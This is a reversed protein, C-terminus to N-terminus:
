ISVKSKWKGALWKDVDDSYVNFGYKKRIYIASERIIDSSYRVANYEMDFARAHEHIMHFVPANAVKIGRLLLRISFEIDEFGIFMNEDFMGADVFSKKHYVSTGGFLFTGFVVRNDLLSDVSLLSAGYSAFSSVGVVNEVKDFVVAGGYAYVTSKDSNLLPLNIYLANHKEIISNIMPLPDDIFYIDNDIFFLWDKEAHRTALNRGKAVGHNVGAEILVIDNQSHNSIHCKIKELEGKDSGNDFVVIQGRFGTIKEEISALLRITMDARNYSLIVISLNHGNVGSPAHFLRFTGTHSVLRAESFNVFHSLLIVKGVGVDLKILQEVIENEFSSAVLIYDFNYSAYNEPSSIKKNFIEGGIKDKNNDLFAVINFEAEIKGKHKLFLSGSGFVLINKKSDM